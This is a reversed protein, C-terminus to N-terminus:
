ALPPAWIVSNNCAFFAVRFAGKIKYEDKLAFSVVCRTYAYIQRQEDIPPLNTEEVAALGPPASSVENKVNAPERRQHRQNNNNHRSRPHRVFLPVNTVTKNQTELTSWTHWKKLKKKYPFTTFDFRLFKGIIGLIEDSNVMWILCLHLQFWYNLCFIAYRSRNSGKGHKSRNPGSRNRQQTSRPDRGRNHQKTSSM